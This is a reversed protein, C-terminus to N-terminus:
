EQADASDTHQQGSQEAKKKEAEAAKKEAEAAKQEAKEREQAAKEARERAAEAADTDSDIPPAILNTGGTKEAGQPLEAAPQLEGSISGDSLDLQARGQSPVMGLSEAREALNQPAQHFAIEQSLRENEESVAQEKFRLQVLEYQNSSMSINLMLATGLSIMVALIAGVIVPLRKRRRTIAALSLAPRPTLSQEPEEEVRGVVHLRRDRVAQLQLAAPAQDHTEDDPHHLQASM